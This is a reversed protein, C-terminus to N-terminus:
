HGTSERHLRFEQVHNVDDPPELAIGLIYDRGIETVTLNLPLDITALLSGAQNFVVWHSMRDTPRPYNQVWLDDDRDVLLAAYAPVTAPFKVEAFRRLESQRYGDSKGVTDISWFRSIDAPTTKLNTRPTNLTGIRHGNLDFVLISFSDATGIYARTRGIATVTSKGLPHPATGALRGNHDLEGFREDGPFIGLSARISGDPNAIWFPVMSRFEGHREDGHREWDYNITQGAANCAFRYPYRSSTPPMALTFNRVFKGAVSFVSWKGTGGEIEYLSDGCRLIRLLYQFEGPGDGQRGVARQFRGAPTFYRLEHDKMDAVILGGDPARTAGVVSTFTEVTDESEAGIDLIPRADIRWVRVQYAHRFAGLQTLALALILKRHM